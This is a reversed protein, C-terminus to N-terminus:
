DDCKGPGSGAPIAVDAVETVGSMSDDHVMQVAAPPQHADYSAFLEAVWDIFVRLRANM